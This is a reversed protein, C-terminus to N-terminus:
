VIEWVGFAEVSEREEKCVEMGEDHVVEDDEEWDDGVEDGVDVDEGEVADDAEECDGVYHVDGGEEVDEAVEGEGVDDAEEGEEEDDVGEGGEVDDEVEEGDEEGGEGGGGGGQSAFDGCCFAVGDGCDEPFVDCGGGCTGRGCVVIVVFFVLNGFCLLHGVCGIVTSGLFCCSLGCYLLGTDGGPGAAM